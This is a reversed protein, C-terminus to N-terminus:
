EFYQQLIIINHILVFIRGEKGGKKLHPNPPNSPFMSVCQEKEM